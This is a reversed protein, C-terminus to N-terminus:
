SLNNEISSGIIETCSFKKKSIQGEFLDQFVRFSLRALAPISGLVELDLAMETSWKVVAM